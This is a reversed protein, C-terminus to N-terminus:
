KIGYNTLFVANVLELKKTNDELIRKTYDIFQAGNLSLVTRMWTNNMMGKQGEENTQVFDKYQKQETTETM